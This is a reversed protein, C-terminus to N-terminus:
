IGKAHGDRREHALVVTGSLLFSYELAHPDSQHLRRQQHHRNHYQQHATGVRKQAKEQGIFIDNLDTHGHHMLEHRPVNQGDDQLNEVTCQSAQAIYLNWGDDGGTADQSQPNWPHGPDNRCVMLYQRYNETVRHGPRQCQHHNNRIIQMPFFLHSSNHYPLILYLLTLFPGSGPLHSHAGRTGTRENLAPGAPPGSPKGNFVTAKM